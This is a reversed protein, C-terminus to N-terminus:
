SQKTVEGEWGLDLYFVMLRLFFLLDLLHLLNQPKLLLKILLVFGFCNLLLHMDLPFQSNGILQFRFFFPVNFLFTFVTELPKSLRLLDDPQFLFHLDFTFLLNPLLSILSTHHMELLQVHKFLLHGLM